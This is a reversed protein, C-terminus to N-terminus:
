LQIPRLRILVNSGTEATVRNPKFGGDFELPILHSANKALWECYMLIPEFLM